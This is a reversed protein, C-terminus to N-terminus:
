RGHRTAFARVGALAGDLLSYAVPIVVLTLLTSTTMGGIIAVGMPARSEGGASLGLALPLMGFITTLATMLIPRLRRPGARLLAERTSLGESRLLNTYDVLLIANKTVLGMMMIMGIMSFISMGYRSVLLAGFAGFFSLPLTLLITFPHLFSEFQGAMVLYIIVMSLFFASTLYGFSEEMAEARGTLAIEYGAPVIEETLRLADEVAEGQFKEGQVNAYIQVARTRDFRRIKDPGVAEEIDVLSRLEVLRRRGDTGAPV